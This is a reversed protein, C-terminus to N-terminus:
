YLYSFLSMIQLNGLELRPEAVMESNYNQWKNITTLFVIFNIDFSFINM